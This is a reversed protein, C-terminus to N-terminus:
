FHISLTFDSEADMDEIPPVKALAARMLQGVQEDEM